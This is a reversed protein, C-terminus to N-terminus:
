QNFILKMFKEVPVLMLLSTISSCKARQSRQCLDILEEEGFFSGPCIVETHVALSKPQQGRLTFATLSNEKNKDTPLLPQSWLEIEGDLVLYLFNPEEGITYVDEGKVYLRSTFYPTYYKNLNNLHKFFPFTKM